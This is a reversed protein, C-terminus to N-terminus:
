VYGITQVSSYGNERFTPSCDPDGALCVNIVGPGTNPM